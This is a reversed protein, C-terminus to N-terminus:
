NVSFQAFNFGIKSCFSVYGHLDEHGEDDLTCNIVEAFNVVQMGWTVRALVPTIMKASRWRGSPHVSLLVISRAVPDCFNQRDGGEANKHCFLTYLLHHVLHITTVPQESSLADLLCVVSERLTVSIPHKFEPPPLRV